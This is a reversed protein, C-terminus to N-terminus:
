ELIVIEMLTYKKGIRNRGGTPELQAHSRSIQKNWGNIKVDWITQFSTLISRWKGTGYVYVPLKVFYFPRRIAM